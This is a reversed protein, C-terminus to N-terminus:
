KNRSVDILSFVGGVTALISATMVGFMGRFGIEFLM